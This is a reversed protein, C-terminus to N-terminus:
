NTNFGHSILEATYESKFIVFYEQFVNLSGDEYDDYIIYSDIANNFTYSHSEDEFYIPDM